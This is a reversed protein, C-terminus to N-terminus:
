KIGKTNPVFQVEDFEESIINNDIKTYKM